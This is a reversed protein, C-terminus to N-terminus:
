SVTDMFYLLNLTIYDITVHNMKEERTKELKKEATM